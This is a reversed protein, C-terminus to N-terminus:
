IIKSLMLRLKEDNLPKLIYDHVNYDKAKEIDKKNSSTTLLVVKVRNGIPLKDFQELFEFGDMVPMNIDLLILKGDCYNGKSNWNEKIFNLAEKGDSAVNIERAIKLEKILSENLFNTISDDDVLLINDIKKM